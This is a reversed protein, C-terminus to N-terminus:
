RALYDGLELTYQTTNLPILLSDSLRLGMLGLHKAVAVQFWWCVLLLGKSLYRVHRYFGPDGYVEEWHQSDYISHYHYVADSTTYGFGQDTSAVQLLWWCMM